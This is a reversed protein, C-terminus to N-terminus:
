TYNQHRSAQELRFGFHGLLEKLGVAHFVPLMVLVPLYYRSWNFPLWLTTMILVAASMILFSAALRRLVGRTPTKKIAVRIVEVLGFGLLLPIVSASQNVKIDLIVFGIGTVWSARDVAVTDKPLRVARVLAWGLAACLVGTEAARQVPNVPSGSGTPGLGNKTILKIREPLTRVAQHAMFPMTQQEAKRASWEARLSLTRGIPDPYLFPNVAVFVVAPLCLAIAASTLRRRLPVRSALVLFMASGVVFPASSFKTACSLGQLVCALVLWRYRTVRLYMGFAAIGGLALALQPIDTHIHVAHWRFSPVAFLVCPAVLALIPGVFWRAIGYLSALLIGGIVAIGIRPPRLLHAAPASRADYSPRYTFAIRDTDRRTMEALAGIVLKGIPPNRNGWDRMEFEDYRSEWLSPPAGTAVLDFTIVGSTLWPPEDHVPPFDSAATEVLMLTMILLVCWPIIRTVLGAMASAYCIPKYPILQKLPEAVSPSM